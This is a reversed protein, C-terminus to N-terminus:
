TKGNNAGAALEYGRRDLAKSLSAIAESKNKFRKNSQRARGGPTFCDLSWWWSPKYTGRGENEYFYGLTPKPEVSEWGPFARGKIFGEKQSAKIPHRFFGVGEPIRENTEIRCDHKKM